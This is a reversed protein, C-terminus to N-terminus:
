QLLFKNTRHWALYWRSPWLSVSEPLRIRRGAMQRLLCCENEASESFSSTAVMVRFDDSITWLGEDFLWHANKSLALGNQLDNNRSDKFAHIHAADVISGADITVLRYGTLACTYDYAGVVATRFKAERGAQKAEKRSKYAADEELELDSPATLGVAEYLAIQESPPFCTSILIRRARKRSNPDQVFRIFDPAIQASSAQDRNRTPRGESDLPTWIEDTHMHFFPLRVDPRQPRRCAVIPWYSIFRSALEPTLFLPNTLRGEEALEFIVLLLLPKHPAPGKARDIHLHSLNELWDHQDSM